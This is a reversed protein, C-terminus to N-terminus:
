VGGVVMLGPHNGTLSRGGSPTVLYTNETGVMGVGPVGRKPELAIVMGEVLPEDFGEAIVPPENVQLGIGHGLFDARRNAYGMFHERFGDELSSMVSAYIESPIAGPKLMEAARLEIEVCRKQMAVAEGELPKGFAYTLTKDTQYGEVGFGTDLYVLDGRRLRRFASGLVPTAPGVGLLGGPSDMSTPALSSEGFAIQGVVAETGFGGFRVLGQHGQRLMAAFLNGGLEAESIGEQLLEPVGEEMVRRHMEGAREMLALEYPSKVARVKAVQADLSMIEPCTFHKRFRQVLGYPVVDTEIHIRDPIQSLSQAADRFSSMPRIDPLLSEACAREYSRRVWLVPDGERPILLTGDQMTGCFYYQNLRGLIAALRWQPQEADMRNRFRRLRDALESAPVKSTM